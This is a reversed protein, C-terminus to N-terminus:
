GKQVIVGSVGVLIEDVIIGITVGGGCTTRAVVSSDARVLIVRVVSSVGSSNCANRWLMCFWAGRSGALEVHLSVTLVVSTILTARVLM